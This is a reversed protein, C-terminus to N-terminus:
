IRRFMRYIRRLDEVAMQGEASENGAETSAWTLYGGVLPCMVRSIQGALGMAFAIIKKDRFLTDLELIEVNDRIENATTVVKCIDAGAALENHVIQVLRDFPPTELLNHYSVIVEARGKIQRIISDVNDTGLEIDIFGAGIDLAALLEKIRKDDKERCLGGEEVRRNCAIWPKKLDAAVKRWEKGILDIRVEYLDALQDASTLVQASSIVPVCIRPSDPM